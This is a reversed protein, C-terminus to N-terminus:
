RGSNPSLCVSLQEDLDAVYLLQWWVGTHSELMVTFLPRKAGRRVEDRSGRSGGGAIHYMYM